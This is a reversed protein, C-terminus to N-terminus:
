DDRRAEDGIAQLRQLLDRLLVPLDEKFMAALPEAVDGTEIVALVADLHEHMQDLALKLTPYLRPGAFAPSWPYSGSVSRTAAQTPTPASINRAAPNPVAQPNSKSAPQAVGIVMRSM